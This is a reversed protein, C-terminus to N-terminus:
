AVVERGSHISASSDRSVTGMRGRSMLHLSLLDALLLAANGLHATVPFVGLFSTISLVGLTIQVVVLIPALIALRRITATRANRLTVVACGLVAGFVAVGLLRHAAHLLVSPHAGSPWLSGRCLPLDICALGAGLHRMLAGLISQLYTVVVASGSWWIVTRPMAATRKEASQDASPLRFAICILLSFFFLSTALHGTSILPLLRFIVTLGGLVGQFIVCSLAGIGYWALDREGTRRGRQILLLCLLTTCLGIATAFLRHSHEVLVGGEMKPFASGFCLPWDPCALSSHTNHVLGGLLLLGFTLGITALVLRRV